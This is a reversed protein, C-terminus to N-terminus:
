EEGPAEEEDPLPVASVGSSRGGPVELLRLAAGDKRIKAAAVLQAVYSDYLEQMKENKVKRLVSGKTQEYTREVRERRSAGMVLWFGEPTEIVESIKGVELKFAAEVLAQPLGPKGEAAVLGADGGRRKYADESHAIALESFRDPAALLEKRLNQALRRAESADREATSILIVKMQVQEPVVFEEQHANYYSKLMENTFDSSKVTTYVVERLLTNLMVKKVRPDEAYGLRKAEQYLVEDEILRKLLEEKQAESLLAGAEPPTRAALELLPDAYIETGNVWALVAGTAAQVMPILGPFGPLLAPLAADLCAGLLFAPLLLSPHIRRM